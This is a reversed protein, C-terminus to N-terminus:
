SADEAVYECFDYRVQNTRIDNGPFKDNKSWIQHGALPNSLTTCKKIIIHDNDEGENDVTTNHWQKMAAKLLPDGQGLRFETYYNHLGSSSPNSNGMLDDYLRDNRATPSTM